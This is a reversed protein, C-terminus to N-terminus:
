SATGSRPDAFAPVVIQRDVDFLGRDTIRAHPIVSLTLLFPIPMYPHDILGLAQFAERMKQMESGMRELPEESMLGAVPLKIQALIKGGMVAALGGERRVTQAALLMDHSNTGVVTLNHSDHSVTTAFAGQQILNHVFAYARRGSKGHREFVFAIALGDASLKGDKAFADITGISTLVVSLFEAKMTQNVLSGTFDICNLRVPGNRVPPRVEFDKETLTRVHVSHLSSRDFSKRTTKSIMKGNKAVLLGNSFVTEAQFRKLDNLIVIDALKGPAIAGLDYMRMRRAARITASRVAEVEDMGQEIFSRCVRDLHGFELLRDPMVDDTVFIIDWPKPLKAFASVFKKSDLIDPGRLKVYMGNRLKEIALEADFNEHDAEAGSAIYTCLEAGKLLPAHGDIVVGKERAVEVIKRIRTENSLLSPYDMVEALGSVGEWELMESVDKSDIIAGSTVASSEPVCSPALYFIKMPLNRSNDLMMRLGSKGFVNVIEHPDAFVTTTGHPLVAEAFTSPVMMTSEIHLHTDILGPIAIANRADFRDKTRFRNDPNGVYVITDKYIGICQNDIIEGTFVNVIRTNEVLLSLPIRGLGASIIEKLKPRM